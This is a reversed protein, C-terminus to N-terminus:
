ISCNNSIAQLFVDFHETDFMKRGPMYLDMEFMKIM